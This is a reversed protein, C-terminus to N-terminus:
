FMEQANLHYKNGTTSSNTEGEQLKIDAATATDIVACTEELLEQFKQEMLVIEATDFLSTNYTITFYIETGRQEFDFSLDFMSMPQQSGYPHISFDGPDTLENEIRETHLEVLVNFIGPRSRDAQYGIEQMLVDLPYVQHELAQQVTHKVRGYFESLPTAAEIDTVLPLNNLYLGIQNELEYHARSALSTGTIIKSNGTYKYMLLKVFFLLSVFVTGDQVDTLKFVQAAKAEDIMAELKSGSSSFVAPREKVSIDLQPIGEKFLDLWYQRHAKIDPGGIEAQEWVAYDKYQIRLPQLGADLENRGSEYFQLLERMLISMSLGDSIIHHIVHVLVWKDNSLRYIVARLLPGAALNFPKSFESKIFAQIKEPADLMGTCDQYRLRFGTEAADNIYQRIEGNSDLRFVTRLSEHRKLLSAMATQLVEMDVSGSFEYAGTVNYAISMDDFQSLLWLRKQSSSLVYSAAPPAPPIVVVSTKAAKEILLAQDKLVPYAFIDKLDIKVDFERHIQYALRTAKLSHGGKAFFNDQIGIKEKGLLDEWVLVLRQQIENQAAEYESTGGLDQDAAELLAKRDAKGNKTVPISNVQLFYAPEMYAPLQEKLYQRIDKEILKELEEGTQDEYVAAAKMAAVTYFAIVATTKDKELRSLVAADSVLPNNKLVTEIEGLEIRYGRIKVQEDKRGLFQLNGDPLWRGLDGSRYMRQGSVFPNPIFREDTLTQRNLYGVSVGSGTIYMEGAVGLPMLGDNDDLILIGTNLIPKGISVPQGPYLETVVCGVTTETPGYENYIRMSPNIRKLISIHAPLVEEGGIIACVVGSSNQRVEALMNVHSPTLKVCNIGSEDAFMEQLIDLVQAQQNYIHLRGGKTLPCFISTITLDFSLSTYLGFNVQEIGSFYYDGAWHIYNALNAHSLLCGKPQGTSGSTYIVYALDNMGPVAAPKTLSTELTDLQIDAAFLAGEFYDLEFMYDSQTLMVQIGADKIIYEKRQRPYEVDIPVYAAGAKLVGLISIIIKESRDMMIGALHGPKLGYESQLLHALQNSKEDLEAYSLQTTGFTVAVASSHAKVKQEFMELVTAAPLGPNITNNFEATIRQKEAADICSLQQLPLSPTEAVADLLNILHKGLRELTAKEYLATSYEILVGIEGGGDTFVFRVDFKSTINDERQYPTIHINDLQGAGSEQLDISEMEILVDFVPNRTAERTLSLQGVLEDFPYEQHAYAEFATEKVQALLGSFNDQGSFRTRLPLTNIYFGIQHELDANVRGTITTGLIIDEQGTYKYFLAKLAATLTIFLTAGTEASLKRLFTSTTTSISQTVVGGSYSKAAPRVKDPQLETVPLDGTFKNLWYQQHSEMADGNLLEQQWAAYDRYHIRLPQLPNTEGKCCANYLQMLEKILIAVSWGDSVIHHIVYAFIWKADEIRILAARVLPGEKLSFPQELVQQVLNDATQSFTNIVRCDHQAIFFRSSDPSATVQRVGNGNEERFITRLTEHREVLALFAEQLADTDLVGEFMFVGPINYAPSETDMQNLLWLRNQASSLVYSEQEPLREIQTKATKHQRHTEIFDILAQKNAKIENILEETLVGKAAKIDLRGNIHQVTINLQKLKAYLGDIM